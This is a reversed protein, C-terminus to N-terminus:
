EPAASIKCLLFIRQKSEPMIDPVRGGLITLM